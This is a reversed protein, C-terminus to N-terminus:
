FKEGDLHMIDTYLIQKKEDLVLDDNTIARSTKKKVTKGCVYAPHQGYM